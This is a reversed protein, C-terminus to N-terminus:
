IIRSMLENKFYKIVCRFPVAEEKGGGCLAATELSHIIKEFNILDEKTALNSIFKELIRKLQKNGERCPTCKGCSEHAFFEQVIQLYEIIDNDEDAVVIAGSGPGVGLKKLSDYDYSSDILKEPIVGGSAGGLQIFGIKKNNKIGGAIEYIIERICKGL